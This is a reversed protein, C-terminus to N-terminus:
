AATDLSRYVLYADRNTGDNTVDAKLDMARTQGRAPSVLDGTLSLQPIALQLQSFGPGVAETTTYTVQFPVKTGALYADTVATSNWEVKASFTGKPMGVLPQNRAGLVRRGDDISHDLEFTYSVVDTIATAVTALATAGPAVFAGGLGVSTAQYHDFLVGTVYTQSAAAIVKSFGRADFTVEITTIGDEGQEIKVKSATCGSFTEVQEAGSNLVKVVQITYSTKTTGTIGNHFIQQAGGTIVSLSQVGFAAGFLVGGSRSEMEAKVTVVGQEITLFRRSGLDARMGSGGLLGQGQRPRVDWTGDTGDLMPYFRDVTIPVNYTAEAKMGIRDDLITSM